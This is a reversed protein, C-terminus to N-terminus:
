KKTDKNKLFEAYENIKRITEPRLSKINRMLIEKEFKGEDEGALFERSVGLVESFRTINAPTPLRQGKEFQSISAQTLDMEKALEEQKLEKKIRAEKLREGFEAM